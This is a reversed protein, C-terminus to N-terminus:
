QTSTLVNRDFLRLKRYVTLRWQYDLTIANDGFNGTQYLVFTQFFNITPNVAPSLVGWWAEDYVSRNGLVWKTKTSATLKARASGSGQPSITRQTWGPQERCDIQGLGDGFTFGPTDQPSSFQGLTLSSDGLNMIEVIYITKYVYYQQYLLTYTPLGTYAMTLMTPTAGSNEWRSFDTLLGNGRISQYAFGTSYATATQIGEFSGKLTMITAPPIYLSRPSFKVARGYPSRKTKRFSRRRNTTRRKWSRKFPRRFKRSRKFFRRM